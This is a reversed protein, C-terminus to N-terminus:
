GKASRVGGDRRAERFYSAPRDYGYDTLLEIAFRAGAAFFGAWDLTVLARLWERQESATRGGNERKLELACGVAWPAAPPRDFILYDPCGVETERHRRPVENRVHVWLLGHAELWDELVEAEDRELPSGPMRKLGM